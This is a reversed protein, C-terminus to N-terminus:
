VTMIDKEKAVIMADVKKTYTDVIKQVNDEGDAAMDEAMGDKKAKKFIEISDRRINRITVKCNEGEAKTQKVLDRRREETVPPLNLRITEGSNSPTVGLNADIIAKEIAKILTKDWPQILVTKSDPVTVSSVQDIPMQTGYSEVMVGHLMNTSAKGARIASFVDELHLISKELKEELQTYVEKPEIM